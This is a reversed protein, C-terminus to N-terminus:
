QNRSVFRRRFGFRLFPSIATVGLKMPGIVPSPLASCGDVIARDILDPRLSLLELAVAGGLSLGVVHGHGGSAKTEILAAVRRATDSRNVWRLARSSGFGPLDPALCHYTPLGSAVDAWMAGSNGVGHLFVITPQGRSGSEHLALDTM